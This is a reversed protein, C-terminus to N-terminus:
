SCTVISGRPYRNPLRLSPTTRLGAHDKPEHNPLHAPEPNRSNTPERDTIPLQHIEINTITHAFAGTVFWYDRVVFRRLV